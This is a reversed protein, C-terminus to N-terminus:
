LAEFSYKISPSLLNSGFAYKITELLHLKLFDYIYLPENGYKISLSLIKSGFGYQITELLHLILFDNKYRSHNWVM